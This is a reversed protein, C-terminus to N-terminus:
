EIVAVEGREVFVLGDLEGPLIPKAALDQGLNNLSLGGLKVILPIQALRDELREEVSEADVKGPLSPEDLFLLIFLAFLLDHAFTQAEVHRMGGPNIVVKVVAEGTEVGVGAAFVGTVPLEAAVFVNVIVLEVPVLVLNAVSGEGPKIDPDTIEQIM